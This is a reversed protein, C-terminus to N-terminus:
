NSRVVHVCVDKNLSLSLTAGKREDRRKYPNKYPLCFQNITEFDPLKLRNGNPNNHQQTKLHEPKLLLDAVFSLGNRLRAHFPEHHFHFATLGPICILNHKPSPLINSYDLQFNSARLMKMEQLKVGVANNMGNLQQCKIRIRYLPLLINPPLLRTGDCLM